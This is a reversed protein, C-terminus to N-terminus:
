VSLYNNRYESPTHKIRKKFVKCFYSEDSFGTRECIEAINLQTDRLLATAIQLRKEILYNSLSIGTSNKFENLLTTRNTHFIRAIKTSSLKQDYSSQLFTIVDVTLRSYNPPICVSCSTDEDDVPKSFYFLLEFLLARSRCPWSPTDQLTLQKNLESIKTKIVNSALEDLHFFKAENKVSHKFHDVFYVDQYDTLNMDQDSNNCTSYDLRMNIVTPNFLIISVTEANYDDFAIIDKENICLIHPGSLIFESGNVTIKNIGSKIHIIKYCSQSLVTDNNSVFIELTYDPFYNFGKTAYFM